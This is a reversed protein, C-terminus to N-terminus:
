TPLPLITPAPPERLARTIAAQLTRVRQQFAYARALTAAEPVVKTVGAARLGDELWRLFQDSTMANLEIREGEWPEDESLREHVLFACEAETAGCRRLNERPDTQARELLPNFGEKEVFLAYRYRHSPGVTNLTHRLVLRGVDPALEREWAAEKVTVVRVKRREQEERLAKRGAQRFKRKLATWRQTVRTVQTEIANELAPPLAVATKGRDTADLRPCALHVLVTVPDDDDIQARDCLVEFQPFPTRLTPAHNYGCLRVGEGEAANTWGCAVELLYPLGDVVGKQCRYTLTDPDVSYSDTLMHTVHAQGIVGLAEPKVERARAQMAKLLRAVKATDLTEQTVLDELTARHLGADLAVDHRAKVGSLGDFEAIVERVTRSRGTRRDAILYAGLLQQFRAPTYWHPSTPRSPV